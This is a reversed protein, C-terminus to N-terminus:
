NVEVKYYLRNVKFKGNVSTNTPAFLVWITYDAPVKGLSIKEEHNSGPMSYSIGTFSSSTWNDIVRNKPGCWFYVTGPTDTCCNCVVEVENGSPVTGLVLGNKQMWNRDDIDWYNYIISNKAIVNNGSANKEGDKFLLHQWKFYYDNPYAPKVTINDVHRNGPKATEGVNGIWAVEGSSPYFPADAYTNGSIYMTEESEPDWVYEQVTSFPAFVHELEEEYDQTIMANGTKMVTTYPLKYQDWGNGTRYYDVQQGRMLNAQTLLSENTQLFNKTDWGSVGTGSSAANVDTTPFGFFLTMDFYNKVKVYRLMRYNTGDIKVTEVRYEKKTGADYNNVENGYRDLLHMDYYGSEFMTDDTARRNPDTGDWALRAIVAFYTYKHVPCPLTTDIMRYSTSSNWSMKMKKGYVGNEDIMSTLTKETETKIGALYSAIAADIKNDISTNYQDLQAQFNNKLSDFEAKTIFASGDNDSVVAAFIVQNLVMLLTIILSIICRRYKM